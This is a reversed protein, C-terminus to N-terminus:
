TSPYHSLGRGVNLRPRAERATIKIMVSRPVRPAVARVEALWGAPGRIDFYDAGARACRSAIM